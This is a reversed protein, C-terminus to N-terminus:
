ANLKFVDSLFAIYYIRYFRSVSSIKFETLFITLGIVSFVIFVRCVLESLIRYFRLVCCKVFVGYFVRNLM